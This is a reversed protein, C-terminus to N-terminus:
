VRFGVGGVRFGLLDGVEETCGLRFRFLAVGIWPKFGM